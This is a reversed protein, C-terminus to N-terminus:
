DRCPGKIVKWWLHEGMELKGGPKSRIRVVMQSLMVDYQPDREELMNEVNIRPEVESGSGVNDGTFKEPPSVPPRSDVAKKGSSYSPPDLSTSRIRGSARRFAQGM